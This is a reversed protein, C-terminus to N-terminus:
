RKGGGALRYLLALSDRAVERDPGQGTAAGALEAVAEEVFGGVGLQTLDEDAVHVAIDTHRQWVRVSAFTERHRELVAEMQAQETLTLTGRLALRLVTRSKAPLDTLARDMAAVEEAGDLDFQLDQFSWTGLRHSTTRARGEIVDVVLVNGPDTEIFDTVEPAGSYAIGPAVDTTSHRDGLAVYAIQGDALLELLPATRILAPDHADPSLTDVAGHGAVIRVVGGDGPHAVRPAGDHEAPAAGDDAEEQLLHAVAPALADSTPRKSTWPAPLIQVGEGVAVPETGRLVHVHEPAADTFAASDYISAADLPDHNGPLLYVPVSIARMAELARAVVRRPLANSEFVDGCVLVFECREAEAVEGIRAIVDTRAATFRAQADADLFHRTMGLQWDATHLFRM